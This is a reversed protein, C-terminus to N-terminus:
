CKLTQAVEDNLGEIECKTEEYRVLISKYNEEAKKMKRIAAKALRAYDGSKEFLANYSEQLRNKGEYVCEEEDDNSEDGVGISEVEIHEGLEEELTSLDELFDLPAIAM